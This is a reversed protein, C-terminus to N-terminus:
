RRRIPTSRSRRRAASRCPRRQEVHDHAEPMVQSAITVTASNPSGVRYTPARASAVRHARSGVRRRQGAVTPIVVPLSTTGPPVVISGGPLTYDTGQAANGGYALNITLPPARRRRELSVTVTYPQGKVLHTTASRLTVIPCRRTAPRGSSRSRRGLGALRRPVGAARRSRPSSTATPNSRTAPRAHQGHRTATTHGARMVVTPNM